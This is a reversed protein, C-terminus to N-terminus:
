AAEADEFEDYYRRYWKEFVVPEIRPEEADDQAGMALEVLSEEVDEIDVPAPARLTKLLFALNLPMICGDEGALMDFKSRIISWYCMCMGSEKCYCKTNGPTRVRVYPTLRLSSLCFRACALCVSKLHLGKLKAEFCVEYSKRRWDAPNVLSDMCYRIGKEYKDLRLPDDKSGVQNPLAADPHDLLAPDFGNKEMTKKIQKVVMQNVNEEVVAFYQRLAPDENAAIARHTTTVVSHRECADISHVVARSFSTLVTPQTRINDDGLGLEGYGNYGWSVVGL